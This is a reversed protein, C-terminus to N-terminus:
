ILSFKTFFYFKKLNFKIRLVRLYYNTHEPLFTDFQNRLIERARIPRSLFFIFLKSTNVCVFNVRQGCSTATIVKKRTNTTMKSRLSM